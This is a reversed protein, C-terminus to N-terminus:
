AVEEHTLPAPTDARRRALAARHEERFRELCRSCIGDTFRLTFGRWSMVSEWRPHGYYQLHWACRGILM